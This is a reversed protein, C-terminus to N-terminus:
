TQSPRRGLNEPYFRRLTPLTFELYGFNFAHLYLQYTLEADWKNYAMLKPPDTKWLMPATARLNEFKDLGLSTKAMNKLSIRQGPFDNQFEQFIDFHIMNKLKRGEGRSMYKLLVPVDFEQGNFSVLGPSGLLYRVADEVQDEFWFQRKGKATDITAISSLEITYPNGAKKTEIDFITRIPCHQSM